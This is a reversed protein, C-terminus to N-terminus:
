RARAEIGIPDACAQENSMSPRNEFDGDKTPDDTDVWDTWEYGEQDCSGHNYQPCCFRVAFDACDDGNPQEQNVCWFGIKEDIHTVASYKFIIAHVDNAFHSALSLHM